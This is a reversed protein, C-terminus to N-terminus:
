GEVSLSHALGALSRTGASGYGAPQLADAWGDFHQLGHSILLSAAVAERALAAADDSVGPAGPGPLKLRELEEVIRALRATMADGRAGAAADENWVKLDQAIAALTM